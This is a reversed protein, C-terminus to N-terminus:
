ENYLMDILERDIPAYETVTTWGQYFISEPYKYSDNFLGLSQTLEERLLHKQGDVSSTRTVDVYMLGTNNPFVEFYGFNKALLEPYYIKYDNKLNKYNGFYVVYNSEKKTKVIKIEIPNIIDNLESVIRTLEDVLYGQDDGDVYIKMDSTWKFVESREGLFENNLAVINFYEKTKQSRVVKPRDVEDSTTTKSSNNQPTESTEKGSGNSDKKLMYNFEKEPDFPTQDNRLSLMFIVFLSTAIVAFVLKVFLNKM